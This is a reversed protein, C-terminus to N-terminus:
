RIVSADACRTRVRFDFRGNVEQRRSWVRNLHSHKSTWSRPAPYKGHRAVFSRLFGTNAPEQTPPQSTPQDGRDSPAEKTSVM